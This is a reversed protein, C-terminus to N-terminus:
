VAVANLQVLLQKPSMFIAHHFPHSSMDTKRGGDVATANAFRDRRIRCIHTSSRM